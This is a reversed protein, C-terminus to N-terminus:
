GTQLLRRSVAHVFGHFEMGRASYREVRVWEHDAAPGDHWERTNATRGDATLTAEVPTATRALVADVDAGVGYGLGNVVLTMGDTNEVADGCRRAPVLLSGTFAAMRERCEALHADIDFTTMAFGEKPEPITATAM